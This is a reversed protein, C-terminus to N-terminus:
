QREVQLGAKRLQQQLSDPGALHAAGVAIFTTGPQELLTIIKKAWAENRQVLLRQYLVPERQRMDESSFRTFADMDGKEWAEVLQTLLAPGKGVDRLVARLLAVQIAQPMDALFRVQQEATELGLVQRDQGLMRAKLQKDVGQEPDFGAELLPAMTLTLAALWPRMVNLAQMGGPVGTRNAALRLRHAESPSLLDSLSHGPNLGHRMVLAAMTAKDDDISELYLTQSDELAKDLEPFNWGVDGPLLHVTGFLYITTDADKVVWLAPRAFLTVPLLLLLGLLLRVFM